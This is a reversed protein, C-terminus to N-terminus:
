MYIIPFWIGRRTVDGINPLVHGSDLTSVDVNEIMHLIAPLDRAGFVKRHILDIADQCDFATVGCGLGIGLSLDEVKEFKIWYRHLKM